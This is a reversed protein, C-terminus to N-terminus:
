ARAADDGIHLVEDDQQFFVEKLLVAHMGCGAGSQAPEKKGRGLTVTQRGEGTMERMMETRNKLIIRIRGPKRGSEQLNDRICKSLGAHM